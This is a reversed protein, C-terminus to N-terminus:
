YPKRNDQRYHWTRVGEPIYILRGIQAVQHTFNHFKNGSLKM